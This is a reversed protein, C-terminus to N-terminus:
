QILTYTFLFTKFIIANLDLYNLDLYNLYPKPLCKVSSSSIMTDSFRTLLACGWSTFLKNKLVAM